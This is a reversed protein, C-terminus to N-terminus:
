AVGRMFCVTSVILLLTQVGIMSLLMGLAVAFDNLLEVLRKSGFLSVVTGTLKMLIYQAGIKIFPGIWISIMVFLGYIGVTNKTVGASILITESADSLLNGIVPVVSSVALKTAKLASADVSGSVVGTITMYATYIYMLVKMSWVTIWKSFDRLRKLTDDGLASHVVSLCIYIYILPVIFNAVLGSLIAAFATTAGYLAGSTTVAGEAALSTTMVPVFLKGYESLNDVTERGLGILSDTPFIMLLALLITAVLESTTRAHGAFQQVISCLLAIAIVAACLGGASVLEPEISAIANKFIYLLGESFSQPESPMYKEAEEPAPPATIDEAAVPIVLLSVIIIILILKRM